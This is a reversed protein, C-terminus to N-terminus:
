WLEVEVDAPVRTGPAIFALGDAVAAGTLMASGRGGAPEAIVQAQSPQLRVPVAQWRDTRVTAAGAFAATIRRRLPSPDGALRRLAPRGLVEYGVLLALPNGPLLVVPVGEIIGLSAPRGPRLALQRLVISGLREVAAVLHDRPGVSAGGSTLILDCTEAMRRLAADIAAPLDRVRVFREVHAGAEEILAALMPGNADHIAEDRHNRDAPIAAIEALEDGSVLLGVRPRGVVEVQQCGMAVLLGIAPPTLRTGAALAPAGARLEEGALRVHDGRRVRGIIRVNGGSANEVREFPVVADATDPVRQGTSIPTADASVWIPGDQTLRATQVAYGDM